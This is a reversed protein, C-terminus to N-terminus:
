PKPDEITQRVGSTDNLLEPSKNVLNSDYLSQVSIILREMQAQAMAAYALVQEPRDREARILYILNALNEVPIHIDRLPSPSEAL